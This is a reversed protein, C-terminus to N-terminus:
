SARDGFAVVRLCELTGTPDEKLMVTNSIDKLYGAILRLYGIGGENFLARNMIKRLQKTGM